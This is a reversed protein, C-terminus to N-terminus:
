CYVLSVWSHKTCLSEGEIRALKSLREFGHHCNYAAVRYQSFHRPAVTRATIPVARGKRYVHGAAILELSGEFVTGPRVRCDNNLM